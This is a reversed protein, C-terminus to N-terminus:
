LPGDGLEENIHAILREAITPLEPYKSKLLRLYAFWQQQEDETNFIISYQIIPNGTHNEKPSTGDGKAERTDVYGDDDDDDTGRPRDNETYNSSRSDSGSEDTHDLMVKEVELLDFGLADMNCDLAELDTFEVALKGWDWKAAEAAKNDMIRFAKAKEPTLDKAVITPIMDMGLRKAAQWRTHGAVIVNDKDVIIPVQFGFEEISTIVIDVADDNIRPNNFYPTITNIDLQEINM